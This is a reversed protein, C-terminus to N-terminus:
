PGFIKELYELLVVSKQKNDPKALSETMQGIASYYNKVHSRKLIKNIIEIIKKGFVFSVVM